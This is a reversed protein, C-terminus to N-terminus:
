HSASYNFISRYVEDHIRPRINADLIKTNLMNPYVRNSLFVYLLNFEPDVWICTGTFGTHGFTKYSAYMSASGNWDSVAPKDWGLGRRSTEYQRRTFFDLTEPKFYQHAGYTGHNLWMQGLKALDTASSFLGAHGAIGGHMAAGQDHVYGVLQSKRFTRDDETPAIRSEPFKNLPLYGTTYAGLPQYFNQDLFDEMPQNLIKEALHHMIYLGMDSYRYDFPTRAVKERMKGNVTWKWLSDKMTKHAFLNKSVPFPYEDNQSASYYEPLFVSDKVTQTWFFITPWLGAQHTLIDRITLDEKNTGKLEPLYVSAKKNVDILGKEHMFMVAQLTAAVKTISALDYITEDNVAAQNEYTLWGTSKEYIVKGNRAVLIHCGPTAGMDIAEQAIVKIKELTRSDMQVAEPTTYSFRGLSPTALGEKLKFAPDAAVPLMGKAPLGGFIVQATKQPLLDDDEYATIVTAAESFNQVIFPNDFLCIVSGKRQAWKKLVPLLKMQEPPAMPFIGIVLVDAGAIAEAAALTDATTNVAVPKFPAYKSLFHTFENQESRGVSVSVFKKEELQRIPVLTENNRVVTVAAEALNHKLLQAEPANLRLVLNDRDIFKTKHLGADYKVALIKQVSLDLQKQLNANKRVSKAILKVAKKLNAPAIMMDNGVEFALREAEGKRDKGLLRKLYPVETFALGRFGMNNKLIENVFVQSVSAPIATKKEPTYFHLQTTLMAGVGEQILRKFSSFDSSDIQNVNFLVPNNPRVFEVPQEKPFHKACAIVGNEQLGKMLAIAKSAVLHRDSSYYGLPSSRDIDIDAQPAFNVHLNLLKMQRAVERGLATVLSDHRVAGLTLPKQFSMTSDLTQGLGWEAHIGTLLPVASIKQLLNALKAYGNPGGGTVLLGGPSFAQVNQRLLNTEEPTSSSSVPLMFLQGIKQNVSLTQFVSDVWKYKNDQAHGNLVLGTMMLISFVKKLM